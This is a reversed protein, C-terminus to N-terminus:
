LASDGIWIRIVAHLDQGLNTPKTSKASKRSDVDECTALDSQRTGCARSILFSGVSRRITEPHGTLVFGSARRVSGRTYTCPNRGKFSSRARRVMGPHVGPATCQRADIALAKGALAKKTIVELGLDISNGYVADVAFALRKRSVSTSYRIRGM